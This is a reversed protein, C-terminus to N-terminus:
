VLSRMPRNVIAFLAAVVAIAFFLIAHKIHHGLPSGGALYVIAIILCIVAVAIGLGFLTSRNM